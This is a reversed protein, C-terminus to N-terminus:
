DDGMVVYAVYIEGDVQMTSAATLDADPVTINMNLNLDKATNDIIIASSLTARKIPAVKAVAASAATAPVINVESGNLTADATAATGVAFTGVFTAGIGASASSLQLNAVVGVILVNGEPLTGFVATGYGVAGGPDTIPVQLAKVKLTMRRLGPSTKPSRSLSRTLGKGM